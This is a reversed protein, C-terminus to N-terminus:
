SALFASRLSQVLIRIRTVTQFLLEYGGVGFYRVVTMVLKLRWYERTLLVRPYYSVATCLLRESERYNRQKSQLPKWSLSLYAAAYSKPKLYSYESPAAAFSRELLQTLRAEMVLWSSSFNSSHQRYYVLPEPILRFTYHHALRLCLDLDEVGNISGDFQGVKDLCVRRVLANSGCEVINRLILDPWVWGEAYNKRVRGNLKGSEDICAVWSYALGSAPDEDLAKVQKQLKDPSWLDDADLFAIYEGRAKRIGLNRASSQGGNSKSILTVRPDKVSRSFWEEIGDSSGDNVVIVEIDELTQRLASALTAPLYSMANYAPIVISVRPMVTLM